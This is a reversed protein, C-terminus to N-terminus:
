CRCLLLVIQGPLSVRSNVTAAFGDQALQAFAYVMGAVDIARSMHLKGDSGVNLLLIRGRQVESQDPQLMATGLLFVPLSEGGVKSRLHVLELATAREGAELEHSFVPRFDDDLLKFSSSLVEEERFRDIESKIFAVGYSRLEPHFAIRYPSDAGFPIQLALHCRVTLLHADLSRLLCLRVTQIQTKKTNDLRGLILSDPTVLLLLPSAGGLDVSCASTVDKVSVYQYGVRGRAELQLVAPRDCSALVSGGVSLMLQVETSGLNLKRVDSGELVSGDASLLSVVVNGDGLGAFLGLQQEAKPNAAFLLSRALTPTPPLTM